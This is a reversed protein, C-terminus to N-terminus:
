FKMMVTKGRFFTNKIEDSYLGRPLLSSELGYALYQNEIRSIIVYFDISGVRIVCDIYSGDEAKSINLRANYEPALLKITSIASHKM